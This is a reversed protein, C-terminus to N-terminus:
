RHVRRGFLTGRAPEGAAHRFSRPRVAFAPEQHHPEDEGGLVGKLQAAIDGGQSSHAEDIIVACKRTPLTGETDNTEREEAMEQLHETVFPFKQLTTIIIPVGSDLAEALQRSDKDIKKVVGQRHEFQYIQDQLQKDLVRRDTVVVISDFVREDSANHLSSLRHALWSITISKGSGTSHEVLYNRGVEESRAMRTLKRVARLQHYRPFIMVEKEIKRGEDTRKKEAHVHLYRALLDLLSHRELVEEWLYATRYNRGKPDKPNGARNDDTGKNFPLFTTAGKALRTTMHVEETDVAFHVLARKKFRFIPAHPNRGEYQEVADEVTTETLPNKLEITVVPIGNVSLVTDISRHPHDPNHHLQRTIGLRNAEYREQLDPNMGHAPKFYAVRLTRGYCKFGHRLTSLAGHADLWKRFDSLVQEGTRDGLLDELRGWTDPQTKQIFALVEDPFLAAERDYTGNPVSDYGSNLLHDEIVSEFATESTSSISM